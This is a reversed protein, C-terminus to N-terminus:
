TNWKQIRSSQTFRARRSAGIYPFAIWAGALSARGGEPNWPASTGPRESPWVEATSSTAGGSLFACIHGLWDDNKAVRVWYLRAKEGAESFFGIGGSAPADDSYSDVEEGDISTVFRNGKVDVAVQIPTRNHVMVNLPTQSRRGPKGDVVNYHIMAIVPRLGAEIVTFKMAHYNKEDKARVTWGLSKSEIQGFFELRYDSFSRTPNFLALAGTNVYGDPHRSWGAPYSAVPAGWAEMGERLSDNLQVAARRAITERVRTVVGKSEPQPRTASAVATRAESVAARGASPAGPVAAPLEAHMSISRQVKVFSAGYWTSFVVAIGAAIKVAYGAWRSQRPKAEPLTFVEAIDPKKPAPKAAVMDETRDWVPRLRFRPPIPAFRASKCDLRCVAEGRVRSAHFELPLMGPKPLNPVLRAPRPNPVLLHVTSLPNVSTRAAAAPRTAPPALRPADFGPVTRGESAAVAFPQLRVVTASKNQLATSAVLLSEVAQPAPGPVPGALDLRGRGAAPACAAIRPLARAGAGATVPQSVQSACLILREAPEAAPGAAPTQLAPGGIESQPSITDIGPLRVEAAELIPEFPIDAVRPWVGAMVPEAQPVARFRPASPIHTGAAPLATLRPVRATPAAPAFEAASARLYSWLPEPQPAPMWTECLAPPQNYAEFPAIQAHLAPLGVAPVSVMAELAVVPQIATEVPEPDDGWALDCPEPDGVVEDLGPLPEPVADFTPLQLAPAAAAVPAAAAAPQIWSCVPAPEPARAALECLAPRRSAGPLFAIPLPARVLTRLAPELSASAQVFAAAPEAQPAPAPQTSAAPRHEAPAISVPLTSTPAAALPRIAASPQVFRAAPEAAASNMTSALLAPMVRAPQAAFGPLRLRVAASLATTAQVLSAVPEPQPARMWNRCEPPPPEQTVPEPHEAPPLMCEMAFAPLRVSHSWQGAASPSVGSAAAVKGLSCPQGCAIARVELPWASWDVTCSADTVLMWEATITRTSALQLPLSRVFDAVGAPAPEPESM